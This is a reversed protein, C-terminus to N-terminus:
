TQHRPLFNMALARYLPTPCVLKSVAHAVMAAIMLPLIMEHNDTMEMVIVFATIPAQVVGAFYAVMSMIVISGVSVAPFLASLDLGFGAGIALSPAFIGGPIGSAYSVITALMKLPGYSASTDGHGELIAKAELYGTGYVTSGSALGIGALLLGCVAATGLPYARMWRGLRGPWGRSFRILIRSFLGGLVGGVLGCVLPALWGTALSFAGHTHGFYTYNGLIALSTIGAVIVATLVTGSLRHELSRGMEEIAFVIGALPTNFAAAVGAAGGAVILAREAEIRSFKGLAGLAHLLSAGVQVTPGERGVSAGCLLGLLTLFIKGIAIRLSLLKHRAAADKIQLAAITQPIGSGQSGAFFRRTVYAIAVFGLPTILFPLWPSISVLYLFGRYAQESGQAFLVAALGVALAGSWFVIRKRWRLPSLWAHRARRLFRKPM